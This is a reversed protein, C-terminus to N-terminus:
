LFVSLGHSSDEEEGEVGWCCSYRIRLVLRGHTFCGFKFTEARSYFHADQERNVISIFLCQVMRNRVASMVTLLRWFRNPLVM